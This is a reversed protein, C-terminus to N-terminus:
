FQQYSYPKLYSFKWTKDFFVMKVQTKDLIYKIDQISQNSYIPVVSLGYFLSAWDIIAWQYSTDALIAIRDGRQIDAEQFYEILAHVKAAYDQWNLKKWYAEKYHLALRHPHHTVTSLFDECINTM